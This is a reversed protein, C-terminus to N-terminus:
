PVFIRFQLSFIGLFFRQGWNNNEKMEFRCSFWATVPISLEVTKTTGIPGTTPTTAMASLTPPTAAM